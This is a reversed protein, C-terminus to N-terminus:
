SRRHLNRRDSTLSSRCTTTAFFTTKRSEFDDDHHLVYTPSSSPREPYRIKWRRPRFATESVASRGPKAGRSRENEGIWKRISKQAKRLSRRRFFFLSLLRLFGEIRIRRHFNTRVNPSRGALEQLAVQTKAPRRKSTRRKAKPPSERGVSSPYVLRENGVNRPSLRFNGHDFGPGELIAQARRSTSTRGRNPTSNGIVREGASRESPRGETEPVESRVLFM